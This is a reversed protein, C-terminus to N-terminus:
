SNRRPARRNTPAAWPASSGARPSCCRRLTCICTPPREWGSPPAVAAHRAETLPAALHRSHGCTWECGSETPRPPRRQPVPSLFHASEAGLVPPLRSCSSRLLHCLRCWESPVAELPLASRSCHISPSPPATRM